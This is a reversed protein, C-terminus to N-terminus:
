AFQIVWYRLYPMAKGEADRPFDYMNVEEADLCWCEGAYKFNGINQQHSM